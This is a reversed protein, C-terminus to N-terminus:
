MSQFFSTDAKFERGFQELGQALLSNTVDIFSLRRLEDNTV